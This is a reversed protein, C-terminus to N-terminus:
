APKSVERDHPPQLPGHSEHEHGDDLRAHALRRTKREKNVDGQKEVKGHHIQRGGQNGEHRPPALQVLLRGFVFPVLACHVLVVWLEQTLDCHHHGAVFTGLLDLQREPGVEPVKLGVLDNEHVVAIAPARRVVQPFHGALNVRSNPVDIHSLAEFRQREVHPHARHGAELVHQQYVVVRQHRFGHHEVFAEKHVIVLNASNAVAGIDDRAVQELACAFELELM